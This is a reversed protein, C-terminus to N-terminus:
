VGCWLVHLAERSRDGVGPGGKEFVLL